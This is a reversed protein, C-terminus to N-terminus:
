GCEGPATSLVCRTNGVLHEGRALGRIAYVSRVKPSGLWAHLDAGAQVIYEFGAPRGPLTRLVRSRADFPMALANARFAPGYMFYQEINSLYLVRVTMGAAAVERAVAAVAGEATFDARLALVRGERHLRAVHEYQAPDDLLWPTRARRMQGSLGTLWRRVPERAEAYAARAAARREPDAIRAALLGEVTPAADEAWLALFEAPTAAHVFMAGYVAHLDVVRQDFDLLVLVEPRSWGALVYNQDTGVGITVGGLDRVDDAFLDLRRENSTLYHKGNTTQPPPPDGTLAALRAALRAADTIPAPSAPEASAQAPSAPSLCSLALALPLSAPARPRVRPPLM